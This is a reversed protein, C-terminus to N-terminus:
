GNDSLVTEPVGVMHFNDEELYRVVNKATAKRLPKLWVFKSMHDLVILITTNGPKSRPYPGLFDTYLRQFSRETKFPQGM